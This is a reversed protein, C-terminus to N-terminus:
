GNLLSRQTNRFERKLDDLTTASSQNGSRPAINPPLQKTPTELLEPYLTKFELAYETLADESVNGSEDLAIRELDVFRTYDAKKLKGCSSIFADLRKKDALEAHKAQLLDLAKKTKQTEKEYLEKFKNQEILASKDAEEKALEFEDLKVKLDMFSKQITKKEDLLERFKSYAITGDADATKPAAPAVPVPSLTESENISTTM